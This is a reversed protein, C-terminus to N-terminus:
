CDRIEVLMVRLIRLSYQLFYLKMGKKYEIINEITCKCSKIYNVIENQFYAKFYPMPETPLGIKFMQKRISKMFDNYYILRAFRKLIHQRKDVYNRDPVTIICYSKAIMLFNRIVRQPEKIHQLVEVSIIADFSSQPFKLNEADGIKFTIEDTVNFEKAKKRAASLIEESIDIATVRIGESALSIAIRGTGCGVDLATKLNEDKIFKVIDERCKKRQLALPDKESEPHWRTTLYDKAYLRFYNKNDSM